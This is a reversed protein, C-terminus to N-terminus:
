PVVATAENSNVSEKGKADVARTVYYYTKGSQVSEDKYRTKGKVLAANIKVYDRGQVTSRYVNYGAVPSTSENWTLMVSHKHRGAGASDGPTAGSTASFWVGWLVCAGVVAIGTCVKEPLSIRRHQSVLVLCVVLVVCVLGGLGFMVFWLPTLAEPVLTPLGGFKARLWADVWLNEALCLALGMVLLWTILFVRSKTGSSEAGLSM